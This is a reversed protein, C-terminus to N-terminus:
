LLLRALGSRLHRSLLYRLLWIVNLALVREVIYALTRATSQSRNVLSVCIGPDTAQAFRSLAPRSPLGHLSFHLRGTVYM